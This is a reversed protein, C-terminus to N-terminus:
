FCTAGSGSLPLLSTNVAAFISALITTIVTLILRSVSFVLLLRQCRPRGPDVTANRNNRVPLLGRSDRFRVGSRPTLASHGTSFVQHGPGASYGLAVRQPFFYCIVLVHLDVSTIDPMKPFTTPNGILFVM